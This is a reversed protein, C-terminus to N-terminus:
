EKLDVVKGNDKVTLQQPGDGVHLPVDARINYPYYSGDCPYPDHGAQGYWADGTGYPPPQCDPGDCCSALSM